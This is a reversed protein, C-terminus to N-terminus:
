NAAEPVSGGNGASVTGRTVPARQAPRREPASAFVPVCFAKMRKPKKKKRKSWNKSIETLRM